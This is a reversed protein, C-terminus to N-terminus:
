PKKPQEPPASQAGSTNDNGSDMDTDPFLEEPPLDGDHILYERRQLYANRVFAYPDYTSELIRDGDLLQSRLDVKGLIFLGASVYNNTILPSTIEYRLVFDPVLGFTDRVDSPGLLPLMLYPGSHVGWKGLTQGFDEEHRDLGMRSAPDFLGGVGLTTNVVIRAADTVGDAIKGQLIDNVFTIPYALNTTFNSVRNRVQRPLFKVYARAVPRIAAHDIATNFKYVSRNFREFRDRKDPKGNPLAACGSLGLTLSLISLLAARYM